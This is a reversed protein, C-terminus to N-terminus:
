YKTREFYLNVFIINYLKCYVVMCIVSCIVCIFDQTRVFYKLPDLGSPHNQGGMTYKYRTNINCAESTSNKAELNNMTSLLCDQFKNIFKKHNIGEEIAFM